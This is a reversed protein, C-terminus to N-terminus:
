NDPPALALYKKEAGLGRIYGFRCLYYLCAVIFTMM